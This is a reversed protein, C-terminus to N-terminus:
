KKGFMGGVNGLTDGLGGKDGEEGRLYKDVQGALPEPMRDKLFSAVTTVATQAQEESIGAKESVLKVIKDM